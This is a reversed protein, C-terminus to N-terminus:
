SSHDSGQEQDSPEETEHGGSGVPPAKGYWSRYWNTMTRIESSQASIIRRALAKVQANSGQELVARSMDIADQHHPIMMEIFMADFPKATRLERLEAPSMEATMAGDDAGVTSQGPNLGKLIGAMQAIESSQASIIGVALQRVEDHEAKAKAIQAMEIASRHHPTMENIFKVDTSSSAPKDDSSDNGCGAILAGLALVAIAAALWFRKTTM